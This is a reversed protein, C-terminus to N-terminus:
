ATWPPRTCPRRPRVSVSRLCTSARRGCVIRRSPSPRGIALLDAGDALVGGREGGCDIEIFVAFKEGVAEAHQAVDTVAAVSDALLSIQVGYRRQLEALAPIKHGAIGVAYTIDKFGAQAFYELEALTSVTIGVARERTALRAVDASKATKMHPRLRVGLDAARRIMRECHREVRDLDLILAPTPLDNILM